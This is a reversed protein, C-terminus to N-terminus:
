ACPRTRRVESPATGERGRAGQVAAGAAWRLRANARLGGPQLATTTPSERTPPSRLSRTRATPQVVRDRNASPWKPKMGATVCEQGGVGDAHNGFMGVMTLVEQGMVASTATRRRRCACRPLAIRRPRAAHERFSAVSRRVLVATAFCCEFRPVLPRRGVERSVMTRREVSELANTHM